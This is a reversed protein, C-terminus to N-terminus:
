KFGGAAQAVRIIKPEPRRRFKVKKQMFVMAAFALVAFGVAVVGMIVDSAKLLFAITIAAAMVIFPIGYVLMAAATLAGPNLEVIVTDDKKAGVPNDMTMDIHMDKRRMLCMNCSDCASKREFRVVARGDKIDIVKGSETM